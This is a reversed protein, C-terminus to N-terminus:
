RERMGDFFDKPDVRTVGRGFIIQDELSKLFTKLERPRIKNALLILKNALWSRFRFILKNVNGGDM